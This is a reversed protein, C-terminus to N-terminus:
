SAAAPGCPWPVVTSPQSPVASRTASPPCVTSTSVAASLPRSFKWTAATAVVAAFPAHLARSGPPGDRSISATYGPAGPVSPAMLAGACRSRGPWPGTASRRGEAPDRPAGGDVEDPPEPRIDAEATSREHPQPDTQAVGVGGIAHAFVDGALAPERGVVGEAGAVRRGGSRRTEARRAASPRSDRHAPSGAPAQRHAHATVGCAARRAGSCWRRRELRQHAPDACSLRASIACGPNSPSAPGAGAAGACRFRSSRTAGCAPLFLPARRSKSQLHLLGLVTQLRSGFRTVKRPCPRRCGAAWAGRKTSTTASSTRPGLRSGSTPRVSPLPM